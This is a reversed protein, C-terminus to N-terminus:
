IVQLYKLVFVWATITFASLVTTLVIISTTLVGEHGLNKGMVYATATTPAGLMVLAAVMQDPQFRFLMGVPLFLMPQVVLKILTAALAPKIKQVAESGQFEAGIVVLALPTAMSGLNSITKNVIHPFTIDYYSLLMGGLISLIIPNRCVDWLASKLKKGLDKKVGESSDGAELTLILVAFVNYLPVSGLMMLPAMTTNHSINEVLAIGLIAASGRYSGQVFEGVLRHDKMLVRALGWIILISLTTAVACYAVFRGDFIERIRCTMMNQVLMAPLSIKYLFLNGSKCFEESLMGKRRLINGLVMVLFIPITANLSFVLNDM